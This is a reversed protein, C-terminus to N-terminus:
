ERRRWRDPGHRKGHCDWESLVPSSFQTARGISRSGRLAAAPVIKGCARRAPKIRRQAPQQLAGLVSDSETEGNARFAGDDDVSQEELRARMRRRHEVHLAIGSRHLLEDLQRPGSGGRAIWNRFDNFRGVADYRHLAGQGFEAITLDPGVALDALLRLRRELAELSIVMQRYRALDGVLKGLLQCCEGAPGDLRRNAVAARGRWVTAMRNFDPM